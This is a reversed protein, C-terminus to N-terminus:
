EYIEEKRIVLQYIEGCKRYNILKLVKFCTVTICNNQKQVNDMKRNKNLVCHKTPQIRERDKPQIQETPGL